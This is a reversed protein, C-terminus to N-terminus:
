QLLTFTYILLLPCFCLYIILTLFCTSIPNILDRIFAPGPERNSRLPVTRDAGARNLESAGTFVPSPIKERSVTRELNVRSCWFGLGSVEWGLCAAIRPRHTEWDIIKELCPEFTSCGPASAHLPPCCASPPVLARWTASISVQGAKWLVSM